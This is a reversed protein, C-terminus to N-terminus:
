KEVQTAAVLDGLQADRCGSAFARCLDTHRTTEALGGCRCCRVMTPERGYRRRRSPEVDHDCHMRPLWYHRDPLTV